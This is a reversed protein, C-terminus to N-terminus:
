IRRHERLVDGASNYAAQFDDKGVSLIFQAAVEKINSDKTWNFPAADSAPAGSAFAELPVLFVSFIFLIRVFISHLM